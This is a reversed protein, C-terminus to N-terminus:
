AAIEELRLCAVLRGQWERLAPEEQACRPQAHPCRQHLACGTPPNFPSPLEGLLTLDTKHGSVSPAAALLAQTYPHLPKEFIAQKSGHEVTKGLYMVMVDDAVHQVVSLNHSIFVYATHFEEQLDMFLNLVQAQISVDLASTPEDAVVIKPNLMMARALAIRQRQGGSFMHPYRQAHEPRLGVKKMMAVVKEHKEARSLKTHITLPETLQFEITQRPNLSGYPNQFVMQIETRLHKLQRKNLKATGEGNILLEGASPAEILTLQRALTSKGCGSEGVIAVTKGAELSFSVGNLAKVIKPPRGLGQSVPYYRALFKAELVIARSM